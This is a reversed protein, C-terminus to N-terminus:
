RDYAWALGAGECYVQRGHAPAGLLLSAPKTTLLIETPSLCLRVANM